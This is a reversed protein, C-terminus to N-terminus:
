CIYPSRSDNTDKHLVITFVRYVNVVGQRAIAPKKLTIVTVM